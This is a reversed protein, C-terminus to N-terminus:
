SYLVDNAEHKEYRVTRSLSRVSNDHHTSFVELGQLGYYIIQLDQLFQFVTILFLLRSYLFVSYSNVNRVQLNRHEPNKKLAKIFYPNIYDTM